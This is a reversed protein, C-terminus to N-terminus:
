RASWYRGRIRTRIRPSLPPQPTEALLNHVDRSMSGLFSQLDVEMNLKLMRCFVNLFRDFNYLTILVKWTDFGSAAM